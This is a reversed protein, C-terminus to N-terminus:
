NYADYKTLRSARFYTKGPTCNLRAGEARCKRVYVKRGEITRGSHRAFRLNDQFIRGSM